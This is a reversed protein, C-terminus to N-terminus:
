VSRVFAAVAVATSVVLGSGALVSTRRWGPEPEEALRDIDRTIGCATLAIIPHLVGIISLLQARRLLRRAWPGDLTAPHDFYPIACFLAVAFGGAGYYAAFQALPSLV